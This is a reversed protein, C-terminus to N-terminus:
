RLLTATYMSTWAMRIPFCPVLCVYVHTVRIGTDAGMARERTVDWYIGVWVDRPEWYPGKWGDPLRM